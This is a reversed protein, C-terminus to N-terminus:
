THPNRRQYLRGPFETRNRGTTAPELDIRTEARPEMIECRRFSLGAVAVIKAPDDQRLFNLRKLHDALEINSSARLRVLLRLSVVGPFIDASKCVTTPLLFSRSLWVKLCPSLLSSLGTLCCFPPGICCFHLKAGLFGGLDVISLSKGITNMDFDSVHTWM